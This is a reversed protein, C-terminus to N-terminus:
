LTLNLLRCLGTTAEVNSTKKLFVPLPLSSPPPSTFFGSGAYFGDVSRNMMPSSKELDAKKSEIPVPNKEIPIQEGRKLIKVVTKTPAHPSDALQPPPPSSNPSRKRRISQGGGRSNRSSSSSSSPNPNRHIKARPPTSLLGGRTSIPDRLCDQPSLVAIAM